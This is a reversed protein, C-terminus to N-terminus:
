NSAIKARLPTTRRTGATGCFLQSDCNITAAPALREEGPGLLVVSRPDDHRAALLEARGDADVDLVLVPELSPIVLPRLGISM